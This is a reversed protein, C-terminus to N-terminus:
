KVLVVEVAGDRRLVNVGVDEGHRRLELDVHARGVRLGTIWVSELLGPLRPYTFRIRQDAADITLGLTSALLLYVAGAAWSQPACAVPYLTPGAGPMRGFGCVLEPLRQLDVWQCTDFLGQLLKEAQHGLHYRAMGAAILANDHPWVSGNHYSMPNYRREDCAVTRVGWGSYM